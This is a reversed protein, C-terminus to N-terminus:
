KQSDEKQRDFRLVNGDKTLTYHHKETKFGDKDRSILDKLEQPIENGRIWYCRGSRSQVFPLSELRSVLRSEEAEKALRQATERLGKAREQLQHAFSELFNAEAEVLGTEEATM